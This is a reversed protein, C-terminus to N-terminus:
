PRGFWVPFIWGVGEWWIDFKDVHCAGPFIAVGGGISLAAGLFLYTTVDPLFHPARPDVDLFVMGGFGFPKTFHIVIREEKRIIELIIYSIHLLPIWQRFM